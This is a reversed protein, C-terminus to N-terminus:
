KITYIIWARPYPYKKNILPRVVKPLLYTHLKAPISFSRILLLQLFKGDPTITVCPLNFKPV